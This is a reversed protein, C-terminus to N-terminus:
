AAPSALFPRAGSKSKVPVQIKLGLCLTCVPVFLRRSFNDYFQLFYCMYVARLCSGMEFDHLMDSFLFSFFYSCFPFYIVGYFSCFLDRWEKMGHLYAMTNRLERKGQKDERATRSAIIFHIVFFFDFLFCLHDHDTSHYTSDYDTSRRKYIHNTLTAPRKSLSTPTHIYM